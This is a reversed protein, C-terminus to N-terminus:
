AASYCRMLRLEVLQSASEIRSDFSNMGRFRKRGYSHSHSHKNYAFRVQLEFTDTAFPLMTIRLVACSVTNTAQCPSSNYLFFSFTNM